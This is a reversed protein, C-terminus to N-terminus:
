EAKCWPCANRHRRYGPVQVLELSLYELCCARKMLCGALTTVLPGKVDGWTALGTLEVRVPVEAALTPHRHDWSLSVQLVFMDSARIRGSTYHRHSGPPRSICGDDQSEWRGRPTWPNSTSCAARTPIRGIRSARPICSSLCVDTRPSHSSPPPPSPRCLGTPAGIVFILDCHTVSWRVPMVKVLSGSCDDGGDEELLDVLLLRSDLEL